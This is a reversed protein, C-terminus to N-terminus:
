RTALERVTVPNTAPQSLGGGNHMFNAGWIFNNTCTSDNVQFAKGACDNVFLNEFNNGVCATGPCLRWGKPTPAAQEAMFVGHHRSKSIKLGHFSNHNSDRMFIGLDNGTLIANTVFNHNFDLDLSIGACLNDHLRLGTFQSEETEYCALGDFQNDYADFDNITLRRVSATVLGGSRCRCCIVHEVAADTANWIQVGNNNVESGDGASRWFEVKQNKRNGDIMLNALRLHNAIHHKSSIPPGLIVVPCDAGDALHLITSSGAGRLTVNNHRLMLPEKIEYTGAELVVEGGPPLGDLAAQIQAGTAGAAFTFVAPPAGFAANQLVSLGLM